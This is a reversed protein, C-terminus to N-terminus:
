ENTKIYDIIKKVLWMPTSSGSVVGIKHYLSFDIKSLDDIVDILFTNKNYTEAVEKLKKTNASSKSGIVLVLDAKKAIEETDKERLITEKCITDLIKIKKYKRKLIEAIKKFNKQQKTTQSMLVFNNGNNFSIKEIEEESDIVKYNTKSNIYSVLAKIEPHTITGYIILNFGRNSFDEAITLNRKVIPCTGDILTIKKEKKLEDYFHKEIGHTRIILTIDETLDKLQNIDSIVNLGMIKLREMEQFNHLLEGFAYVRKKANLEKEVLLICRKIGSCFGCYKSIMIEKM